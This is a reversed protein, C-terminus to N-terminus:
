CLWGGRIKARAIGGFHIIGRRDPGFFRERTLLGAPPSFAMILSLIQKGFNAHADKACFKQTVPYFNPFSRWSGIDRVRQFQEVLMTCMQDGLHRSMWGITDKRKQKVVTSFEFMVALEYGPQITISSQQGFGRWEEGDKVTALLL